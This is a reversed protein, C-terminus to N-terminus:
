SKKLKYQTELDNGQSQAQVQTQLEVIEKWLFSSAILQGKNVEKAVRLLLNSLEHAQSLRNDGQEEEIIKISNLNLELFCEEPLELAAKSIAIVTSAHLLSYRGEKSMENKLDEVRTVVASPTQVPISTATSVFLTVGDQECVKQLRKSDLGTKEPDFLPISRYRLGEFRPATGARDILVLHSAFNDGAWTQLISTWFDAQETDYDQFVICDIAIQPFLINNKHLSYESEDTTTFLWDEQDESKYAIPVIGCTETTDVLTNDEVWSFYKSLKAPFSIEDQLASWDKLANNYGYCHEKFFLQASTVYAFHQFVLGNRETEEHYFPNVEAIDREEGDATTEFLKPPSHTKWRAGPRFRWVRLWEQRPNQSYCNRTSVVLNQGVFFDCWFYAATKSPNKLFLQRATTIQRATWLEDIDIQWLLCEEKINSIPANVMEIRGDWFMGKPKRYVTINEPYQHSLKDLHETTGDNSRGEFHMEDIIHGGNKLSWSDCHKIAAVGEVVHWHWIFPLQKFIEAHYRVFPQGNLVITLFHVSLNRDTENSMALIQGELKNELNIAM